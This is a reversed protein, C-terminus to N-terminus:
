HHARAVKEHPEGRLVPFEPLIERAQVELQCKEGLIPSGPHALKWGAIQDSKVWDTVRLPFPIFGALHRRDWPDGAIGTAPSFHPGAAFLQAAFRNRSM